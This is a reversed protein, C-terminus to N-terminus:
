FKKTFRFFCTKGNQGPARVLALTTYRDATVFFFDVSLKKVDIGDVEV